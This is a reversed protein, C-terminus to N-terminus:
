CVYLLNGWKCKVFLTDEIFLYEDNLNEDGVIYFHKIFYPLNNVWLKKQLDAKYRYKKCNLILLIFDQSIM